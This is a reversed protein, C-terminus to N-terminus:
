GDLSRDEINVLEKKEYKALKEGYERMSRRARLAPSAAACALKSKAASSLASLLLRQAGQMPVDPWLADLEGIMKKYLEPSVAWRVAMARIYAKALEGSAYKEQWAMIAGRLYPSIPVALSAKARNIICAKVGLAPLTVSDPPALRASEDTIVAPKKVVAVKGEPSSIIQLFIPLHSWNYLNRGMAEEGSILPLLRERSYIHSPLFGYAGPRPSSLIYRSFREAFEGTSCVEDPFFPIAEQPWGSALALAAVLGEGEHRELVGLAAKLGEPDIPDDDSLPWIFKGGGMRLALLLNKHFGLNENNKRIRLSPHTEAEKQLCDWTDDQSGNDSVCVEIKGGSQAAAALVPSLVQELM